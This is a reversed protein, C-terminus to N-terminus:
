YGKILRDLADALRNRNYTCNNYVTCYYIIDRKHSNQAIKQFLMAALRDIDNDDIKFIGNDSTIFGKVIANIKKNKHFQPMYATNTYGEYFDPFLSKDKLLCLMEQCRPKLSRSEFIVGEYENTDEYDNCIDIKYKKKLYAAYTSNVTYFMCFRSIMNADPEYTYNGINTSAVIIVKSLDIDEVKRETLFNLFSNMVSPEACLFEDLYLVAGTDQHEALEFVWNPIAPQLSKYEKGKFNYVSQTPIGLSESAELNSLTLPKIFYGHKHAWETICQTKGVGTDGIFMCCMKPHAADLYKGIDTVEITKM